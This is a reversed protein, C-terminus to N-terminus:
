TLLIANGEPDTITRGKISDKIALILSGDLVGQTILYQDLAYSLKSDESEVQESMVRLHRTTDLSSSRDSIVIARRLATKLEATQILLGAFLTIFNLQEDTIAEEVRDADTDLTFSWQSGAITAVREFIAKHLYRILVDNSYRLNEFNNDGITDRLSSLYKYYTTEYEYETIYVHDDEDFEILYQINGKEHNFVYDNNVTLATPTGGIPKRYVKMLLADEFSVVPYKQLYNITEDGTARLILIEKEVSGTNVTAAM